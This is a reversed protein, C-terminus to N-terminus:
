RQGGIVLYGGYYGNSDNRYELVVDGRSTKFSTQYVSVHDHCGPEGGDYWPPAAKRGCLPCMGEGAAHARPDGAEMEMEEVDLLEAGDLDAPAELHEVWSTSCCDGEVGLVLPVADHFAMTVTEKDDSLTVSKIKHGLRERLAAGVAGWGSLYNLMRGIGPNALTM